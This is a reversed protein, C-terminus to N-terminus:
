RWGTGVWPLKLDLGHEDSLKRLVFSMQATHHQIHRINYIHLEIRTLPKRRFVSPFSSDDRLTAETEREISTIINERTREVFALTDAKSLGESIVPQFEDGGRENFENPVFKSEHESLYFNAWFLLHYADQKITGEGVKTQWHEDPCAEVRLKLMSLAAEYQGLLTQTILETM